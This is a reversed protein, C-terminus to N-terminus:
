KRVLCRFIIGFHIKLNEERSCSQHPSTDGAWWLRSSSASSGQQVLLPFGGTNQHLFANGSKNKHWKKQLSDDKLALTEKGESYLQLMVTPAQAPNAPHLQSSYLTVLSCCQASAKEIQKDKASPINAVPGQCCIHIYKSRYSQSVWETLACIQVVYTSHATSLLAKSGKRVQIKPHWAMIVLSLPEENAKWLSNIARPWILNVYEGLAIHAHAHFRLYM